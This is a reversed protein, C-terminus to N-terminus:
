FILYTVFSGASVLLFAVGLCGGSNNKKFMEKSIEKGSLADSLNKLFDDQLRSLVANYDVRNSAGGSPKTIQTKFNTKNEDIKTLSINIIGSNLGSVTAMRYTNFTDNKESLQYNGKNVEILSDIKNKIQDISFNLELEKEIIQQAM